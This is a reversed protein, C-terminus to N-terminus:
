LKTHFSACLETMFQEHRQWAERCEDSCALVDDAEMAAIREDSWAALIRRAGVIGHRMIEEASLKHQGCWGCRNRNDRHLLRVARCADSCLIARGKGKFEKSCCVCTRVTIPLVKQPKQVYGRHVPLEATHRECFLGRYNCDGCGDGDGGCSKCPVYRYMKNQFTLPKNDM